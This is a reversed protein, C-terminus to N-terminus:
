DHLGGDIYGKKYSEQVLKDVESTATYNATIYEMVERTDSSDAPYKNELALLLKHLQERPDSQNPQTMPNQELGMNNLCTDCGFFEHNLDHEYECIKSM